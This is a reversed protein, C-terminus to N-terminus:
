PRGRKEPEPLALLKTKQFQRDAPDPLPVVMQVSFRNVEFFVFARDKREMVGFADAGYRRLTSKIQEQSQSVNVTTNAAFKAM